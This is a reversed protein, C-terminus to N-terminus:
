MNRRYESGVAYLALSMSGLLCDKAADILAGFTNKRGRAVQQLRVLEPAAANDHATRFTQVNEVQQDKEADTSRM